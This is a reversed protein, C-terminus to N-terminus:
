ERNANLLTREAVTTRVNVCLVAAIFCLGAAFYFVPDGTSSTAREGAEARATVQAVV